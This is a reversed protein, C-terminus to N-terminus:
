VMPAYLRPSAQVAKGDARTCSSAHGGPPYTVVAERLFKSKKPAPMDLYQFPAKAAAHVHVVQLAPQIANTQAMVPAASFCLALLMASRVLPRNMM